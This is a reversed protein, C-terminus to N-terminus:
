SPSSRLGVMLDVRVFIFVRVQILDSSLVAENLLLVLKDQPEFLLELLIFPSPTWRGPTAMGRTRWGPVALSRRGVLSVQPVDEIILHTIPDVSFFVGAAAVLMYLWLLLPPYWFVLLLELLPDVPLDLLSNALIHLSSTDGSVLTAGKFSFVCACRREGPLDSLVGEGLLEVDRPESQIISGQVM